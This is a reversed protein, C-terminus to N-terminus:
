DTIGLWAAAVPTRGVVHRKWTIGIWHGAGVALVIALGVVFPPLHPAWLVLFVGVYMGWSAAIFADGLLRKALTDM